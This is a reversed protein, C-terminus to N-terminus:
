CGLAVAGAGVLAVGIDEGAAGVVVGAVAAELEDLGTILEDEELVGELTDVVLVVLTAGEDVTEVLVEEEGEEEAELGEKVELM